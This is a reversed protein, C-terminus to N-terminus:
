LALRRTKDRLTRPTIGLAQAAASRDGGHRELADFLLRRELLRLAARLRGDAERAVQEFWPRDPPQGALVNGEVHSRLRYFFTRLPIGLRESAALRNGGADDLARVLMWHELSRLEQQLYRPEAPTVDDHVAIRDSTNAKPTRPPKTLRAFTDEAAPSGLGRVREPLDSLSALAGGAMIAARAIVNRLERVNGPWHYCELREMAAPLLGAIQQGSERNCQDVFAKVLPEIDERRKRLPPVDIAVANLRYFLDWRFAGSKCQEELQRHTAALVRVDVSVERVSGVRTVAKNELVRLLATQAMPSLEAIEDLLVTGGRASEFVGEVRRDAGTFAGREHGFLTSEILNAPIAGCNICIFRGGARRSQQHLTRAVLEKGVGTEGHILVPVNSPAVREVTALLQQMAPSEAVIASAAPVSDGPVWGDLALPPAVVVREDLSARKAAQYSREVLAELTTAADPFMALGCVLPPAELGVGNVIADAIQRAENRTTEPMAIEIQDAGYLAMQDFPRLLQRVRAHWRSLNGRRAGPARVMLLALSHRFTQCRSLEGEMAALFSDHGRLLHRRQESPGLELVSVHLGGLMVDDGPRLVCRQVRDGAWTVGNTSGLDQVTVCSSPDLTCRAHKRSLSPEDISIDARSSRGIVVPADIPLPVVRVGGRSYLVLVVRRLEVIQANSDPRVFATKIDGSLSL